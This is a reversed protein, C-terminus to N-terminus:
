SANGASSAAAFFDTVAAVISGDTDYFHVGHSQEAVAAIDALEPIGYPRYRARRVAAGRLQVATPLRASHKRDEAMADDLWCGASSLSGGGTQRRRREDKTLWGRRAM